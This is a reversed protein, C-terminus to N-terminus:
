GVIVGGDCSVGGIIEGKEFAACCVERKAAGARCCVVELCDQGESWAELAGMHLQALDLRAAALEISRSLLVKQRLLLGVGLFKGLQRFGLAAGIHCVASCVLALPLLAHVIRVNRDLDCGPRQM